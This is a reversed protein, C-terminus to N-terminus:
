GVNEDNQAFNLQCFDAKTLDSILPSSTWVNVATCTSLYERSFNGGDIWICNDLFGFVKQWYNIGNKSDRNIKFMKFIFILRM